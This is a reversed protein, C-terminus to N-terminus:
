DQLMVRPMKRKDAAIIRNVCAVALCSGNWASRRMSSTSVLLGIPDGHCVLPGDDASSGAHGSMRQVYWSMGMIRRIRDSSSCGSQFMSKVVTAKHVRQGHEGIIWATDGTAGAAQLEDLGDDQDGGSRSTATPEAEDDPEPPGTAWRRDPQSRLAWGGLHNYRDVGSAREDGPHTTSGLHCCFVPSDRQWLSCGEKVRSHGM